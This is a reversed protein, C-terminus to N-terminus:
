PTRGLDYVRDERFLYAYNELTFSKFVFPNSQRRLARTDAQVLGHMMWYFPFLLFVSSPCLPLYM